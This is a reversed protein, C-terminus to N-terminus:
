GIFQFLSCQWLNELVSWLHFTVPLIVLRFDLSLCRGASIFSLVHANIYKLCICSSLLLFKPWFPWSNTFTTHRGTLPYLFRLPWLYLSFVCRNFPEVGCVECPSVCFPYQYSYDKLTEHPTHRWLPVAAAIPFCFLLM